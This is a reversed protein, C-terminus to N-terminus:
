NLVNLKRYELIAQDPMQNDRYVSGLSYIYDTNNPDLSVAKKLYIIAQAYRELHMLALGLDNCISADNDNLAFAETAHLLEKEFDGKRFYIQSLLKHAHYFQADLLLAKKLSAEANDYDLVSFYYYGLAYQAVVFDPCVKLADKLLIIAEKPKEMLFLETSKNLTSVMYDHCCERAAQNIKLDNPLKDQAQRIVSLAKFYSGNQSYMRVLSQYAKECLPNINLAKYYEDVASNFNQSDRYAQALGLHAMWSQPNVKIANEYSRIAKIYLSHESYENGQNYFHAELKGRALYLFVALIAFFLLSEVLKKM